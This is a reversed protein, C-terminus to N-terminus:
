KFCDGTGDNWATDWREIEDSEAAIQDGDASWPFVEEGTRRLKGTTIHQRFLITHVYTKLCDPNSAADSECGQFM